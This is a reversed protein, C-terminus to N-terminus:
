LLLLRLQDKVEKPLPTKFNKYYQHEFEIILQEIETKEPRFQKEHPNSKEDPNLNGVMGKVQEILEHKNVGLESLENNLQRTYLGKQIKETLLYYKVEILGIKELISKVNM